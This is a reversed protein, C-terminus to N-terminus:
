KQNKLKETQITLNRSNTTAGRSLQDPSYCPTCFVQPPYCVLLHRVTVRLPQNKKSEAREASLLIFIFEASETGRRHVIVSNQVINKLFLFFIRLNEVATKDKLDKPTIKSVSQM